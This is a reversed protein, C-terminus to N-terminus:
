NLDGSDAQDPVIDNDKVFTECVQESTFLHWEAPAGNHTGTMNVQIDGNADKVVDSPGIRDVTFGREHGQPSSLLNFLMEPSAVARECQGHAYSVMYWTHPSGAPAPSGSLAIAALAVLRQKM